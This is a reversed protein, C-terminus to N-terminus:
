VWMAQVEDPPPPGTIPEADLHWGEACQAARLVKAREACPPCKSALTAGCPILVQETEGTDTNIRRLQVPHLCAGHAEAVARVADRAAWLQAQLETIAQRLTVPDALVARPPDGPVVPWDRSAANLWTDQQQYRRCALVVYGILGAALVGGGAALVILLLTLVRALIDAALVVGLALVVLEGLGTPGHGHTHAGDM